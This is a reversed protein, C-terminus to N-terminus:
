SICPSHRLDLAKSRPSFSPARARSARSGGDSCSSLAVSHPAVTPGWSPTPPGQLCSQCCGSETGTGGGDMKLRIPRSTCALLPTGRGTVPFESAVGDAGRSETAPIQSLRGPAQFRSSWPEAPPLPPLPASMGSLTSTVPVHKEVKRKKSENRHKILPFM